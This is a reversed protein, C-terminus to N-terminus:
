SCSWAARKVASGDSLNLRYLSDVVRGDHFYAEGNAAIDFSANSDIMVSLPAVSTLVTGELKALLGVNGPGNKDLVYLDGQYAAAVVVPNSGGHPDGPAYDFSQGITARGTAPDVWFSEDDITVIRFLGRGSDYDLGANESAINVGLGDGVEAAVGDYGIRYLAYQARGNSGLAYLTGNGSHLDLSFLDVSRDVDGTIAINSTFSGPTESNFSVLNRGSDTRTLGYLTVASQASTAAVGLVVAIAIGIWKAKM